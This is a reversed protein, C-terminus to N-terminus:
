MANRKLLYDLIDWDLAHVFPRFLGEGKWDLELLPLIGSLPANASCSVMAIEISFQDHISKKSM